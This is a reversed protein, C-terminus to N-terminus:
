ATVGLRHEGGPLRIARSADIAYDGGRRAMVGPPHGGELMRVDRSADVEYDVGCRDTVGPLHEGEPLHAFQGLRRDLNRQIIM